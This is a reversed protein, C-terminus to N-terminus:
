FLLNGIFTILSGLLMNDPCLFSIGEVFEAMPLVPYFLALAIPWHLGQVISAIICGARGAMANGYIGAVAGGFFVGTMSPVAVIGFLQGAILMGINWFIFTVVFGVVMSMPSYQFLVPVDLAPRAGPIIKDSIGKFAPIIEALFMRVGFIVVLVGATITVAQTFAFLLYNTDAGAYNAVVEPGALLCTIGFVLFFIIFTTAAMDRFFGFGKPPEFDDMKEEPNGILRGLYKSIVSVLLINTIYGHAIAWDDTGSVKRTFRQIMQPFTAMYIGVIISGAVIIWTNNLGVYWLALVVTGVVAWQKHGALYLNKFPTFRAMLINVVFSLGMVAAIASGLLPTIAGTAAEDSAVLGTLEFAELFIKSFPVSSSVIAGIGLLLATFGLITKLTGLIVKDATERQALLGILALCGMIIAPERLIRVIIEM